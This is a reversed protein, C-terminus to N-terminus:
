AVEDGATSEAGAAASEFDVLGIDVVYTNFPMVARVGVASVPGLLRRRQRRLILVLEPFTNHPV